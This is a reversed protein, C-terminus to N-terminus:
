IQFLHDHTDNLRGAAMIDGAQQTGIEKGPGKGARPNQHPQLRSRSAKGSSAGLDCPLRLKQRQSLARSM